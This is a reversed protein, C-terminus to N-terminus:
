ELFKSRKNTQKKKQKDLKCKHPATLVLTIFANTTAFLLVIESIKCMSNKMCVKSKIKM